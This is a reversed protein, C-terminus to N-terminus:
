QSLSVVGGGAHAKSHSAQVPAGTIVQQPIIMKPLVCELSPSWGVINLPEQCIESGLFLGNGCAHSEPTKPILFYRTLDKKTKTHYLVPVPM